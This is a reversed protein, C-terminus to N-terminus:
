YKFEIADKFPLFYVEKNVMEQRKTLNNKECSLIHPKLNNRKIYAINWFQIIRSDEWLMVYFYPRGDSEEQHRLMADYKAKELIATSFSGKNMKRVKLEATYIHAKGDETCGTIDIDCRCMDDLTNATYATYKNQMVQIFLERGYDDKEKCSEKLNM